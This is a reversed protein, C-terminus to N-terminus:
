PERANFSRPYGAQRPRKETATVVALASSENNNDNKYRGFFVFDTSAKYRDPGVAVILRTRPEV